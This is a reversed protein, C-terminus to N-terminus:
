KGVKPQSVSLSVVDSKKRKKSLGCLRFAESVSSCYVVGKKELRERKARIEETM